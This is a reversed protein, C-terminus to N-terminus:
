PHYFYPERYGWNGYPGSPPAGYVLRQYPGTEFFGPPPVPTRPPIAGATKPARSHATALRKTLASFKATHHPQPHHAAATVIAPKPQPPASQLVAEALSVVPAPKPTFVPPITAEASPTVIPAAKPKTGPPTAMLSAAIPAVGKAAAVGLAGVVLSAFLLKLAFDRPAVPM